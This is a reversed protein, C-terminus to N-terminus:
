HQALQALELVYDCAIREKAFKPRSKFSLMEIFHIM